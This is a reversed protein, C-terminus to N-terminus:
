PEVTPEPISEDDLALTREHGAILILNRLYIVFGTSQGLIGVIDNRWIFYALLMMAGILSMWWFAVPVVSRRNRESVIWQVIMRGTFLLQGLLGLGIWILGFPGTINFVIGLWDRGREQEFLREALEDPSLRVEAGREILVYELRRDETRRLRVSERAGDVRLKVRVGTQPDIPGAANIWWGVSVLGLGIILILLSLITVRRRNM